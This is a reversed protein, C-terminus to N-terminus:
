EVAPDQPRGTENSQPLLSPCRTAPDSCSTRRRWKCRAKDPHDAESSCSKSRSRVRNRASVGAVEISSSGDLCVELFLESNCNSSM